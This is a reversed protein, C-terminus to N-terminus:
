VACYAELPPALPFGHISPTASPVPLSYPGTIKRQMGSKGTQIKPLWVLLSALHPTLPTWARGLFGNLANTYAHTNLHGEFLKYINCM